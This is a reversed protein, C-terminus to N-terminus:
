MSDPFCRNKWSVLNNFIDLYNHSKTTIHVHAYYDEFHGEFVLTAEKKFLPITLGVKKITDFAYRDIQIQLNDIVVIIEKTNKNLDKEVKETISESWIPSTTPWRHVHIKDASFIIKSIKNKSM